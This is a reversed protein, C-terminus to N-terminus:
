PTWILFCRNGKQETIKAGLQHYFSLGRSNRADANWAIHTCDNQKAIEALRSMLAAGAGQSRMNDDVYLDDLWISPQGAFSSYRFGYLAFGIERQAIEAFLVYAFPIASFLTKHIKDESVQLVGSFAGINRDFEAKKQIFSFILSVDEPTATRVKM